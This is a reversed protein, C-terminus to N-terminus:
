IPNSEIYSLTLELMDSLERETLYGQVTDDSTYFPMKLLGKEKHMVAMEFLGSPGGYSFAGRIISITYVDSVDVQMRSCFMDSADRWTYRKLLGQIRSREILEESKIPHEVKYKEILGYATITM